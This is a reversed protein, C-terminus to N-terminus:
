RAMISQIRDLLFRRTLTDHLCRLVQGGAAMSYNDMVAPFAPDAQACHYYDSNPPYAIGGGRDPASAFNQGNYVCFVPPISRRRKKNLGEAPQYLDTIKGNSFSSAAHSFEHLPVLSAATVHFAVTGPAKNKHRHVMQRGDVTFSVGPGGNEDNTPQASCRDHTASATVAFAVDARLKGMGPHSFKKLFPEFAKQRPMVMQTNDHAVLANKKTAPRTTDFVTLIRWGPSITGFMTEAQGPLRGTICDVIYSAAADFAPRNNVIPDRILPNTSRGSEIWPNAIICLTYPWAGSPKAAGPQLVDVNAM